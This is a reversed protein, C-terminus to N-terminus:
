PVAPCGIDILAMAILSASVQEGTSVLMDYERHDPSDTIQHMLDILEDTTYGMASVIVVLKDGKERLEKLKKAINKIKEASGM